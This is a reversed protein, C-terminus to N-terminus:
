LVSNNEQVFRVLKAKWQVGVVKNNHETVNVLVLRKSKNCLGLDTWQEHIRSYVGLNQM